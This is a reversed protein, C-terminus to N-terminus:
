VLGCFKSLSSSDQVDLSPYTEIGRTRLWTDNSLGIHIIIIIIIIVIRSEFVIKRQFAQKRSRQCSIVYNTLQDTRLSSFVTYASKHHGMQARSPQEIREESVRCYREWARISTSIDVQQYLCSLSDSAVNSVVAGRPTAVASSSVKTDTVIYVCTYVCIRILDQVHTYSFRHSSASWASSTADSAPRQGWDRSRDNRLELGPQWRIVLEWASARLEGSFKRTSRSNGPKLPAATLRCRM